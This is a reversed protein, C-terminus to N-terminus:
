SAKTNMIQLKPNDLLISKALSLVLLVFVQLWFMQFCIVSIYAILIAAATVHVLIQQEQM